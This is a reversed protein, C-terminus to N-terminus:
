KALIMKKVHSTAGAQLRYWYVGSTLHSADFSIKHEGASQWAEVLTAVERGFLDYVKLTVQTEAPLKYSITTQPNFPNPYNMLNTIRGSNNSGDTSDEGSLAGYTVYITDTATKNYVNDIVEVKLTFATTIMREQQTQSTGRTYWTPSGDLKKYWQYSRNGSGGSPNSDYTGTQGKYLYGPGSIYTGLFNATYIQSDSNGHVSINHTQAGGDSWACWVYNASGLSQPSVAAISHNSYLSFSATRPSTYTSGDVVIQGGVFNNQVTVPIVFCSQTPTGASKRGDGWVDVTSGSSIQQTLGSDKYFLGTSVQYYVHIDADSYSGPYDCDRYDVFIFHGNVTIKYQGFGIVYDPAAGIDEVHDLLFSTTYNSLHDFEHTIPYGDEAAGWVVGQADVYIWGPNNAPQNPGQMLHIYLEGNFLPTQATVPNNPIFSVAVLAFALHFKLVREITRM